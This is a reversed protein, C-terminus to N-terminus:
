VGSATKLFSYRIIKISGKTNLDGPEIIKVSPRSILSPFPIPKEYFQKQNPFRQGSNHNLEKSLTSKDVDLCNSIKTQNHGIKKLVYIQYRQEQTLQTYSM